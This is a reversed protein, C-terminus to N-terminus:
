LMVGIEGLAEITKNAIGATRTGDAQVKGMLWVGDADSGIKRRESLFVSAMAARLVARQGAAGWQALFAEM